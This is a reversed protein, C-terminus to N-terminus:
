HSGREREDRMSWWAGATLLLAGALGLWAGLGREVDTEVSTHDASHVVSIATPDLIRYAVLVLALPGALACFVAVGVPIGPRAEILTLGVLALGLLVALVLFFDIIHFAQWANLRLERAEYWPLFMAVGLAVAGATVVWEAAHLRRLSM